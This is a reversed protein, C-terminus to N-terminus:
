DETCILYLTATAAKNVLMFAISVYKTPKAHLFKHSINILISYFCSEPKIMSSKVKYM